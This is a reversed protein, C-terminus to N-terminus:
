VDFNLINKFHQIMSSSNELDQVLKYTVHCFSKLTYNAFFHPIGSGGHSLM